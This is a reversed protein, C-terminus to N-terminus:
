NEKYIDSRLNKAIADVLKPHKFVFHIKPDKMKSLTVVKEDYITIQMNRFMPHEPGASIVETADKRLKEETEAFTEINEGEKYVEVLPKAKSFYLDRYETLNKIERPDSTLYFHATKLNKGVCEGILACNESFRILHSYNKEEPHDLYFPKVNGAMYIPFWSELGLLMEGFPRDLDHIINLTMGSKVIMALALMWKKSFAEDAAPEEMPLNSFEWVSERAKGLVTRKAFELEAKKMGEVGYYHRTGTQHPMAPPVILKDFKIRKMYDSLEFDDLFHLFHAATEKPDAGPGGKATGEVTKELLLWERVQERINESTVEADQAVNEKSSQNRLVAKLKEFTEKKGCQTAVFEATKEALLDIDAPLRKGTLVRSLFSADYGVYASLQRQSLSLYKVLYAFRVSFIQKRGTDAPLKAYLHRRIEDERGPLSSALGLILRDMEDSDPVPLREGSRYRSISSTSLGSNEALEKATIGAEEMYKELLNGFTLDSM